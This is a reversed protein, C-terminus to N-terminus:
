YREDFWYVIWQSSKCNNLFGTLFMTERSPIVEVEKDFNLKSKHDCKLKCIEQRKLTRYLEVHFQIYILLDLFGYIEMWISFVSIMAHSVFRKKAKQSRSPLKHLAPCSANSDFEDFRLKHIKLSNIRSPSLWCKPGDGVPKIILSAILKLARDFADENSNISKREIQDFKM